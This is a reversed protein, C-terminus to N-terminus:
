IAIAHDCTALPAAVRPQKLAPVGVAVSHQAACLEEVPGLMTRLREDRSRERSRNLRSLIRLSVIECCSCTVESWCSVNCLHCFRM